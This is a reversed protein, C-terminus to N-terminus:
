FMKKLDLIWCKQKFYRRNIYMQDGSTGAIANIYLCFGSEQMFKEVETKLPQNQYLTINSVEMWIAKINELMKGAGKLVKLEAGQVDIHAFDIDAIKLEECVNELTDTPVTIVQDFKVWPTVELHKDPKLLSSSKNGFNWQDTNSRGEPSGSSVHFDATGKRDSLAVPIVEVNRVAYKSLNDKILKQNDPLPEFSVIRADPFLKSYKISDEGECSGIDFIVKLSKKRFLMLLEKEVPSSSEIYDKRTYM